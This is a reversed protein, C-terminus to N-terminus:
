DEPTHMSVNELTPVMNLTLQHHHDKDHDSGGQSNQTEGVETAMRKALERKENASHRSQQMPLSVEVDRLGSRMTHDSKM